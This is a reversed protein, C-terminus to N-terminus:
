LGLALRMGLANPLRKIRRIKRATKKYNYEVREIYPNKLLRTRAKEIDVGPGFKVM